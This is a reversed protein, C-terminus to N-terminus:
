VPGTGSSYTRSKILLNQRHRFVMRLRTALQRQPRNRHRRVGVRGSVNEAAPDHRQHIQCGPNRRSGMGLAANHGGGDGVETENARYVHAVHNADMGLDIAEAARRDRETDFGPHQAAALALTAGAIAAVTALARGASM